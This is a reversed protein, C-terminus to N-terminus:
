PIPLARLLARVRAAHPSTPHEALFRDGLEKAARASGQKALAEVRLVASEQSLLGSAFRADYEDLMRLAGAADGAALAARSRDMSAVEDGLV